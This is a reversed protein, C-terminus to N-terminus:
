CYFFHLFFLNQIFFLKSGSHFTSRKKKGGNKLRDFFHKLAIVILRISTIIIIIHHLELLLWISYLTCVIRILCLTHLMYVVVRTPQIECGIFDLENKKWWVTSNKSLLENRKPKQRSKQQQQNHHIKTFNWYIVTFQM